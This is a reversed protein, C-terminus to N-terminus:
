VIEFFSSVKIAKNEIYFQDFADYKIESEYVKSEKNPKSFEYLVRTNADIVWATEIGVSAYLSLKGHGDNRLDTKLTTKAVEVVIVANEGHFYGESVAQTKMVFVDPEPMNHEDIILSGTIRAKYEPRPYIERLIDQVAQQIDSHSESLPSLKYVQGHILETRGQYDAYQQVYRQVNLGNQPSNTIAM